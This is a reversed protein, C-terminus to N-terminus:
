RMSAAQQDGRPQYDIGLRFSSMATEEDYLTAPHHRAHGPQRAHRTPITRNGSGHKL